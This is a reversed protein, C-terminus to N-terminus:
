DVLPLLEGDQMAELHTERISDLVGPLEAAAVPRGYLYGQVVDCGIARLRRATDPSEVGEAVATMRFEHALDTVVRVLIDNGNDMDVIFSRDIKLTSIPLDRLQSISTNGSGFDDLAVSVGMASIRRLVVAAREPDHMIASETIEVELMSPPVGYSALLSGIRSELDPETLNHASLNVAVQIDWGQEHWRQLQELVLTLVKRTLHHVLGTREALPIFESPPIMGRQPHKWRLLAELGQVEGSRLGVKPQYAISLQDDADLAQRLDSLMVLRATSTSDGDADYVSLGIRGAKAVYMAIDAHKLLSQADQAHDPLVALGVSTDVHLTLGDIVYPDTFQELVRQGFLIGDDVSRVTTLLVAFEDGGLRAVTDTARVIGSLRGAVQQLLQDGRDHGLTDNIEKFRDVDLMLLGVQVGNEQAQALATQLRQQLLRRNPLGTLPDLLALRANESARARMVRSARRVTRFLLLWVTLLGLAVITALNRVSESTSAQLMGYDLQVQAVGAPRTMSNQYVPVYVDLVTQAQNTLAPSSSLSSSPKASASPVAASSGEPDAVGVESADPSPSGTDGLPTPGPLVSRVPAVPTLQEVLQASSQGNLSLDLRAADPFATTSGSTDFLVKGSRAFIRVRKIDDGEDLREVLAARVPDSLQEKSWDSAPVVDRLYADVYTRATVMASGEAVERLAQSQYLVLAIGLAGLALFSVLAFTTTLTTRRRRM